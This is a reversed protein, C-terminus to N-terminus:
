QRGGKIDNKFENKQQQQRQQLKNASPPTSSRALSFSAAKDIIEKLTEKSISQSNSTLSNREIEFSPNNINLNSNNLCTIASPTM